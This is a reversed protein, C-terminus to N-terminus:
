RSYFLHNGILINNKFRGALSRSYGNFYLHGGIVGKGNLAAKAAKICEEMNKKEADSAYKKSDYKALARSLPSTGNSGKKIVSFQVGWKTDYIVEKISNTHSFVNSKSRNIVVEGVAVKGKYPQNGAESFILASLLRLEAKTYNAKKTTAKKETKKAEAKEKKTEKVAEAKEAKEKEAEESDAEESDAEESDEETEDEEDTIDEILDEDIDSADATDVNTDTDVIDSADTTETPENNETVTLEEAYVKTTKMGFSLVTVLLVCMMLKISKM